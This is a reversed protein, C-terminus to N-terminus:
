LSRKYSIPSAKYWRRFARSFVAQESFCLAETIQAMNLTKHQLYRLALDKRAGDLVEKFSTRELKLRRQLTRESLHLQAAYYKLDIKGYSIHESILLSLQQSVTVAEPTNGLTYLCLAEVGPIIINAIKFPQQLAAINVIAGDFMQNFYVPVQFIEKFLELDNPATCKFYVAKPKISPQLITQAMKAVFGFALFTSQKLGQAQPVAQEYQLCLETGTVTYSIQAGHNHMTHYYKSLLQLLQPLSDTNKIMLALLGLIDFDQYQSLRLGFDPLNLELSALELANYLAHSPIMLNEEEIPVRGLGAAELLAKPDGGFQNVLRQYGRLSGCRVLPLNTATSTTSSTTNSSHDLM